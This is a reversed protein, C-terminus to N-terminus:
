LALPVCTDALRRLSGLILHQDPFISPSGDTISPKIAPKVKAGTFTMELKPPSVLNTM